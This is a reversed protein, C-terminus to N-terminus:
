HFFDGGMNMKLHFNQQLMFPTNKHVWYAYMEDKSFFALVILM